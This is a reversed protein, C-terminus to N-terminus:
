TGPLITLMTVFYIASKRVFKRFLSSLDERKTYLIESTFSFQQRQQFRLSPYLTASTLTFSPSDRSLASFRKLLCHWREPM